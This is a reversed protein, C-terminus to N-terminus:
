LDWGLEWFKNNDFIASAVNQSDRKEVFHYPFKSIALVPSYAQDPSALDGCGLTSQSSRAVPREPIKDVSVTNKRASESDPHPAAITSLGQHSLLPPAPEPDSTSAKLDHPRSFERAQAQNDDDTIALMELESLLGKGEHTTLQVGGDSETDAVGAAPPMDPLAEMDAALLQELGDLRSALAM